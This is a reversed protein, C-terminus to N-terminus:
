NVYGLARLQGRITDDMEAGQSELAVGEGQTADLWHQRDSAGLFQGLMIRMYRAAVPHDHRDLETQEGPDSELDFYTANIGRLVMKWRGARIVRRDNLFDSFAVTPGPPMQGRTFGLLDRGETHPMADVGLASTVTAPIDLTSVTQTIRSQPIGPGHVLLPVNILEQYVSHGHGWSGHEDFEEGHDSTLVFITNDWVGMEKLRDIFRGMEHDHQTIEGDHLATLRQRDSEDFSVRGGKAEELLEPTSRPTVQGSYDERPDYMRRYESPPDYPVHPDITQVYAFFRRDKNAEIWDGAESFVNSADTNKNERIFNTYHDWGQDFGFRDSVYGNAIFSGTAFGAEHLHESVLMADDSLRSESEKAGHSTPHLGTLVSAVSPKTWNEPAQAALFVGSESALADLRPTRVRSRPNFPKLKEARLTDILLVVVNRAPEREEEEIEPLLIRPLSFGVRGDGEGQAVFDIRTVKGAFAALDVVQDQWEGSAQGSYVQTRSGGEATAFVKVGAASGEAGTGFGLRAHQPVQVYFSVTTPRRVAIARRSEEGMMMEQVLEGFRPAAYEGAPISSGEVVRISEIAASVPEGGVLETGGFRMLLYNEGVEVHEAAITIDYDRFQDGEELRILEQQNGNLFLSLNHSGIPKARFRLTVPGAEDVQFFVRGTDGVYSYTVDGSSEDGVWGTRWHGVTYKMRSPTGFDIFTGHHDVDALHARELLDIHTRLEEFAEPGEATEDDDDCAFSLASVLV